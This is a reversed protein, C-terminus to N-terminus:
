AEVLRLLVAGGSERLRCWKPPRLRPAQEGPLKRGAGLMGNPERKARAQCRPDAWEASNCFPCDECREILVEDM